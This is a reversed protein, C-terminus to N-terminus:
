LEGNWVGLSRVDTLGDGLAQWATGDWRAVGTAPQGGAYLFSGGAILGGGHVTLAWVPGDLGGGLASWTVCDAQAVTALGVLGLGVQVLRATRKGARMNM